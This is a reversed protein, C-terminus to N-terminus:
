WEPRTGIMLFILDDASTYNNFSTNYTSYLLVYEEPQKLNNEHAYLINTKDSTIIDKVDDINRDTIIIFNIKVDLGLVIWSYYDINMEKSIVYNQPIDPTLNKIITDRYPRYDFWILNCMNKWHDIPFEPFQYTRPIHGYVSYEYDINELICGNFIFIIGPGETYCKQLNQPVIRTKVGDIFKIIDGRKPTIHHDNLHKLTFTSIIDVGEPTIEIRDSKVFDKIKGYDPAIELPIIILNAM